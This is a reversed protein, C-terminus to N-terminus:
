HIIYIRVKIWAYRSEDHAQFEAFRQDFSGVGRDEMILAMGLPMYPM